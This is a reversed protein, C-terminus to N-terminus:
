RLQRSLEINVPQSWNSLRLVLPPYLRDAVIRLALTDSPVYIPISFFGESDSIGVFSQGEVYVHAGGVPRQSNAERINGRLSRTTRRRSNLAALDEEASALPSLAPFQPLRKAETARRINGGPDAILGTKVLFSLSQIREVSDTPELARLILQSEYKSRELERNAAIQRYATWVTLLAGIVAVIVTANLPAGDWVKRKKALLHEAQWKEREFDLQERQHVQEILLRLLEATSQADENAM